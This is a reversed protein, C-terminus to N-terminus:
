LDKQEQLAKEWNPLEKPLKNQIEVEKMSLYFTSLLLGLAFAQAYVRAQVLKQTKTMYLDRNIVKWAMGLAGGWAVVVAEYKYNNLKYLLKETLSLPEIRKLNHYKEKSLHEGRHHNEFFKLSGNTGFFAAGGLIPMGVMCARITWNFSQFKLPQQFKMYKKFGLGVLGGIVAGKCCQEFVYVKHEIHEKESILKM